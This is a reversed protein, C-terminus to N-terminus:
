AYAYRELEVSRIRERHIKEGRKKREIEERKKEGGM